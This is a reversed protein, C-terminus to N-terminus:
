SRTAVVALHAEVECTPPTDEGALEALDADFEAETTIGREVIGARAAKLRDLLLAREPDTPRGARYAAQPLVLVNRPSLGCRDLIGALHRGIHRDGGASGQSARLAGALREYTPSPPPESISMGDDVDVVCALGGTRLVRRIEEAAAGPDALHQFVFRCFVADVSRGPFPLRYADAEVFEATGGLGLARAVDRGTELPPRDLDVGVVLDAGLTALELTSAGFGCGIDLVRTGTPLQLSSLLARRSGATALTQVLLWKRDPGAHRVHSSYTSDIESWTISTRNVIAGYKWVSCPPV